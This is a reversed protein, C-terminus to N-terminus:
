KRVDYGAKKAHWRVGEFDEPTWVAGISQQKELEIRMRLKEEAEHPNAPPPLNRRVWEWALEEYENGPFGQM